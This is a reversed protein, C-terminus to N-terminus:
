VNKCLEITSFSLCFWSDAFSSARFLGQYVNFIGRTYGVKTQVHRNVTVQYVSGDGETV